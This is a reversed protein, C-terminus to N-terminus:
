QKKYVRVFDVVVQSMVRLKADDSVFPGESRGDGQDSDWQNKQYELTLLIMMDVPETPINETFTYYLKGDVYCKMYERTWEVGYTHYKDDNVDVLDTSKPDSAENLQLAESGKGQNAWHNAVNFAKNIYDKKGKPIEVVDIETGDTPKNNYSRTQSFLWFAFWTSHGKLDSTKIRTCIYLPSDAASVFKGGWKVNKPESKDYKEPFGTMLYAGDVRTGNANIKTKDAVIRLVLQGKGNLWHHGSKASYMQASDETQGNWRIGKVSKEAFEDPTYGLFPYWNEPEGTGDFEDQWDIVWDGEPTWEDSEGAVSTTGTPKQDDTKNKSGEAPQKDAIVVNKVLTEKKKKWDRDYLLVQWLYGKGITTDAPVKVKVRTTQTGSEIEEWKETVRKWNADFLQVQVIGAVMLESQVALTYEKGAELSLPEETLSVSQADLTHPLFWASVLCLVMFKFNLPSKM